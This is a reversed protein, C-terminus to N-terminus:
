HRKDLYWRVGCLGGRVLAKWFDSLIGTKTISSSPLPLTAIKNERVLIVLIESISCGTYDRIPSPPPLYITPPFAPGGRSPLPPNACWLKNLYESLAGPTDQSLDFANPPFNIKQDLYAGTSPDEPSLKIQIARLARLAREHTQRQTGGTVIINGIKEINNRPFSVKDGKRVRFFLNKVGPLRAAEEMGEISSITGDIAILAREACVLKLSPEPFNAKMGLALRIASGTPHIGSSYPYTYGSMFGGSLRAAIECIVPGQSSLKIDGKAAGHSLGLAKIGKEFTDWLAEQKSASFESPITHGMEIFHPPHHIHRDAIGCPIMRGNEVLADLSFEPGEILSEVLVRKTRSHKRACELAEQVQEIADFRQVGRAGMNDVPKVVWPSPLHQIKATINEDSHVEVFPPSPVQSNEFSRRMQAKDSALIAAAPSHGPLGLADAILAVAISFDTGATFVADMWREEHIRYAASLLGERDILNIHLFQHPLHCGEARPNGDAAIVHLGMSRAIELAPIQMRGCGLILITKPMM